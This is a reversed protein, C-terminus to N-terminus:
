QPESHLHTYVSIQWDAYDKWLREFENGAYALEKSSLVKDIISENEVEYITVYGGPERLRFRHGAVMGKAKLVDILHVENYYRNFEAEKEKTMSPKTKIISVIIPRRMM